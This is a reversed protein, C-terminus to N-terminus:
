DGDMMDNGTFREKFRKLQQRLAEVGTGAADEDVNNTSSVTASTLDGEAKLNTQLPDTSVPPPIDGIDANNIVAPQREPNSTPPDVSPLKSIELPPTPPLPMQAEAYRRGHFDENDEEFEVVRELREM